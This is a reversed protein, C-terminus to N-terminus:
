ELGLEKLLEDSIQGNVTMNNASQFQKIGYRTKPGSMGDAPGPDYGLEKLKLQVARVLNRPWDDRSEKQYRYDGATSINPLTLGAVSGLLLCVFWRRSIQKATM